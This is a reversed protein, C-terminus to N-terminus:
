DFGEVGRGERGVEGMAEFSGEGSPGAMAKELESGGFGARGEGREEGVPSFEGGPVDGGEAGV